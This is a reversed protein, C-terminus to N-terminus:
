IDVAFHFRVQQQQALLLELEAAELEQVVWEVKYVATDIETLIAQDCLAQLAARVASLGAEPEYWAEAPPRVADPPIPELEPDPDPDNPLRFGAMAAAEYPSISFYGALAALAPVDWNYVAHALAKGNVIFADSGAVEHEFTPYFGGSM